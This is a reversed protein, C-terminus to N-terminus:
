PVDQVPPWNVQCPLTRPEEYNFEDNFDCKWL